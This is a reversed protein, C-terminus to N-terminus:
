TLGDFDGVGGRVVYTCDTYRYGPQVRAGDSHNRVLDTGGAGRKYLFHYEGPPLRLTRQPYGRDAKCAKGRGEAKSSYSTCGACAGLKVSGTAPGTFLVEVPSPGDNKVVFEQGSGPGRQAPLARGAQPREAAVEAAIAITRARERRGSDKYTTAFDRLRQAAETFRGDEFQDVGCAYAGTEVARRADSAVTAGAGGPLGAAVSRVQELKETAACPDAGRLDATRDDVADSLAPVVKAAADSDPFTTMLERLHTGDGRELATTGCEYLSTALRDDPWTALRGLRDEGVTAPLTRLYKLPEVAQCFRRDAYPRAVSEYYTGLRDPVRDAARSGGHDRVLDRYTGLASRYDDEAAAFDRGDQAAVLRDAKTLRELLMDEVAEDQAAAYALAGGAPVALLVVGLGAALPARLRSWGIATRRARRVADAAALVLVTLYGVLVGGPVGDVDAPLATALLAATAAWCLAAPLWARLLVYGLGLGTLNLLGAAVARLPEPAAAPRSPVATPPELIEPPGYPLAAPGPAPPGCPPPPPTIYPNATPGTAAPPGPTAPAHGPPPPVPPGFGGGPPHAPGPGQAPSPDGAAAAPGPPM